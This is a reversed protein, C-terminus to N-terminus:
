RRPHPGPDATQRRRRPGRPHETQWLHDAIAVRQATDTGDRWTTALATIDPVTIGLYPRAVKHYAAM